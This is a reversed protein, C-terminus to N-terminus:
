AQRVLVKNLWTGLVKGAEKACSRKGIYTPWGPVWSGGAKSRPLWLPNGPIKGEQGICKINGYVSLVQRQPLIPCGYQPLHSLLDQQPLSFTFLAVLTLVLLRKSEQTYEGCDGHRLERQPFQLMFYFDAENGQTGSTCNYSSSKNTGTSLPIFALCTHNCLSRGCKLWHLFISPQYSM